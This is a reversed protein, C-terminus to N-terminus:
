IALAVAGVVAVIGIVIGLITPWDVGTVPIPLPTTQVTPSSSPAVTPTQSAAPSPSNTAGSGSPTPTPSAQASTVTLVGPTKGILVNQGEQSASASTSPDFSINYNGSTASAKVTANVKLVEISSGTIANSSNLTFISYSITGATNDFTNKITQNLNAVGPGQALSTIQIASPDFKLEVDIGTVANTGTDLTVSFTFSDGPNKSQSGPSISITSAPAAKQQFLQQQQVLIIGAGLGGILALVGIIAFITSRKM